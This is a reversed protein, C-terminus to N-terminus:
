SSARARAPGARGRAPPAAASRRCRRLQRAVDAVDHLPRESFDSTARSRRAICRPLNLASFRSRFNSRRACLTRMDFKQQFTLWFYQSPSEVLTAGDIRIALSESRHPVDSESAHKGPSCGFPPRAHRAGFRRTRGCSRIRDLAQRLRDGVRGIPPQEGGLRRQPAGHRGQDDCEQEGDADARHHLHEVMVALRDGFGDVVDVVDGIEDRLAEVPQRLASFPRCRRPAIQQLARQRRAGRREAAADQELLASPMMVAVAGAPPGIPRRRISTSPSVWGSVMRPALAPTSSIVSASPSWRRRWRASM